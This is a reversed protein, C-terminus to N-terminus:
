RRGAQTKVVCWPRTLLATKSKKNKKQMKTTFCYVVPDYRVIDCTVEVAFNGLMQVVCAAPDSTFSLWDYQLVTNMNCGTCSWYGCSMDRGSTGDHLM